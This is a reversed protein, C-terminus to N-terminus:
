KRSGHLHRSTTRPVSTPRLMSSGDGLLPKCINKANLLQKYHARAERYVGDSPRSDKVPDIGEQIEYLIDMMQLYQADPPPLTGQCIDLDTDEKSAGAARWQFSIAVQYPRPRSSHTQYLVPFTGGRSNCTRHLKKSHCCKFSGAQTDWATGM